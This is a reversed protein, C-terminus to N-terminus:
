WGPEKVTRKRENEAAGVEGPCAPLFCLSVELGGRSVNRLEVTGGHKEMLSHVITMGLGVGGKKKGDTFFPVFVKEIDTEPIGCGTDTITVCGQWVAGCEVGAARIRIEGGADMAQIANKIVNLFVCRLQDPDGTVVPGGRPDLGGMDIRTGSKEVESRLLQISEGILAGLHCQQRVAGSANTFVLMNEVVANLHAVSDEVHGVLRLCETRSREGRIEQSICDLYLSIGGLPNRIEHAVGAVMLGLAELRKKRELQRDKEALQCRLDVVRDELLRHSEELKSTSASFEEFLRALGTASIPPGHQFEPEGPAIGAGGPCSSELQAETRM